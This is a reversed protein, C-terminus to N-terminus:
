RTTPHRKQYDLEAHKIEKAIKAIHDENVGTQRMWGFIKKATKFDRRALNFRVLYTWSTADLPDVAIARRLAEDAARGRGTDFLAVALNVWARARHPAIDVSRVMSTMADDFQGSELLARGLRSYIRSWANQALKSTVRGNPLRAWRLADLSGVPNRNDIAIRDNAPIWIFPIVPSVAIRGRYGADTLPLKSEWFLPRVVSDTSIARIIRQQTRRRAYGPVPDASLFTRTSPLDSLRQLIGFDWLHQAPVIILDPRVAEVTSAFMSAACFNDSSCLLIAKPPLANLPGGSGFLESPTYRDKFFEKPANLISWSCLLALLCTVAYRWIRSIASQSVMSAFGVGALLAAVAGTAHGVQRDRIGMPNIWICYTLDAVIIVMLTTFIARQRRLGLYIGYLAFPFLWWQELLQKAFDIAALGGSAFMEGRYANRIRQATLHQFLASLSEPNGWDVPPNRLSALPLYIVILAGVLVLPIRAILMKGRQTSPTSFVVALLIPAIMLGAIIHSGCALGTTLFVISKLAGRNLAGFGALAILLLAMPYVEVSLATNIFTMWTGLGAVALVAGFLCNRGPGSCRAAIMATIHGLLALFAASILAAMSNQRWAVSGLPLLAGLRLVLMDLPFGTPHPVGLVFSASGLEGSDYYGVDPSALWCLVLAAGVFIALAISNHSSESSASM